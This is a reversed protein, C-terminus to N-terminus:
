DHAVEAPSDTTSHLAAIALRALARTCREAEAATVYHGHDADRFSGLGDPHRWPARDHLHNADWGIRGTDTALTIGSHAAEHAEDPLSSAELGYWPHGPRVLVYGCWYGRETSRIIECSVGDRDFPDPAEAWRVYDPESGVREQHPKRDQISYAQRRLQQTQM